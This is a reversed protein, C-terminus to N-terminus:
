LMDRNARLIAIITKVELDTLEKDGYVFKYKSTINADDLKLEQIFEHEVTEDYYGAKYMLHEYTVGLAPALKRLTDPKPVSNDDIEIRSVHSKSVGSLNALEIQTLKKNKRLSKLYENFKM